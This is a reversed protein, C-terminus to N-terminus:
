TSKSSASFCATFKGSGDMFWFFIHSLAIVPEPEFLETVESNQSSEKLASLFGCSVLASITAWGVTDFCQFSGMAIVTISVTRPFSGVPHLRRNDM